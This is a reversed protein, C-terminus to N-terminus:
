IIFKKNVICYFSWNSFKAIVEGTSMEAMITFFQSKRQNIKMKPRARFTGDIFLKTITLEEVFKKDCWLIHKYMIKDYSTYPSSIIRHVEESWQYTMTNESSLLANELEDMTNVKQVEATYKEYDDSQKKRHRAASSLKSQLPTM